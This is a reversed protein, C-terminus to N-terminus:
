LPLSRRLPARIAQPYLVFDKMKALLVAKQSPKRGAFAPSSWLEVATLMNGLVCRARGKKCLLALLLNHAIGSSQVMFFTLRNKGWGTTTKNAM